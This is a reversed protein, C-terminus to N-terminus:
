TGSAAGRMSTRKAGVANKMNVLWIQFGMPPPGTVGLYLKWFM